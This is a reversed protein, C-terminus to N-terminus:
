LFDDLFDIMSDFAEERAPSEYASFHHGDIMKLRKPTSAREYTELAVATPAVQDDTAVVMLLATGDLEPACASPDFPPAVSMAMTVMNTWGNRPGNTLFWESSEPQPLFAADIGEDLVVPMPGIERRGIDLGTQDLAVRMAFCRQSIQEPETMSDGIGAFPANAIVAHVDPHFAGLVIAEGGSFSSGWVAVREPHVMPLTLVHDVVQWMDRTQTWPDVIGRPEGDSEGIGRHDYLCVVYGARAFQEAFWPLGMVRTASFGHSMVIAPSGAM